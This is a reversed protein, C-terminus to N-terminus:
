RAATLEAYLQGVFRDDTTGVEPVKADYDKAPKAATV